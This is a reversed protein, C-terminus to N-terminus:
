ANRRWLLFALPLICAIAFWPALPIREYASIHKSSPGHGLIRQAAAELAGLQDEDFVAGGTVQAAQTLLAGSQPDAHYNPDIQDGRTFIRENPAWVHVFIPAIRHKLANKFHSDVPEIEGDTFVVLLRHKLNPSYVHTTLLLGLSTLNTSRGSRGYRLDPPPADARVSEALTHAFLARDTTPMMDPLARDTMSVIGAPVDGLSADLKRAIRKARTLRTPRGPGDSATMSRSTDFVFLAQADRRENVLQHRVIVPQAAAVGVLVPLLALAIVVPVLTRRWDPGHAGLVLRVQRSRTEMRYVAALPLAAALAFLAALPTLFSVGFLGALLM